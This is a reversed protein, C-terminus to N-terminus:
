VLPLAYSKVTESMWDVAEMPDFFLQFKGRGIQESLKEFIGANGRESAVLAVKTHKGMPINALAYKAFSAFEDITLHDLKSQSFDCLRNMDACYLPDDVLRKAAILFDRLQPAGKIEIFAYNKEEIIHHSIMLREKQTKVVIAFYFDFYILFKVM